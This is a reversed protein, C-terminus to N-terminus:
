ALTIRFETFHTTPTREISHIDQINPHFHRRVREILLTLKERSGQACIEVSGDSLNRVYGTVGLADAYVKTKARFGIGHVKGTVIAHIERM